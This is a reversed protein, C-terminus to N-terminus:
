SNRQFRVAPASLHKVRCIPLLFDIVLLFGEGDARLFLGIFIMAAPQISADPSCFMLMQATHRITKNVVSPRILTKLHASFTPLTRVPNFQALNADPRLLAPCRPQQTGTSVGELKLPIWGSTLASGTGPAPLSWIEPYKTLGTGSIRFHYTQQPLFCFALFM